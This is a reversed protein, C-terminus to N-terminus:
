KGSTKLELENRYMSRYLGLNRDNFGYIDGGYHQRLWPAYPVGDSYVRFGADFKLSNYFRGSYLLDPTAYPARSGMKQKKRAYAARAYKPRVVNGESDFGIRLQNRNIDLINGENANVLDKAMQVPDIAQYLRLVEDITM